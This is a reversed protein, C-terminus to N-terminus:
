NLITGDLLQSAYNEEKPQVTNEKACYPCKLFRFDAKRKFEYTCEKCRYTVREM